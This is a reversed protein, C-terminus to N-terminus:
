ETLYNVMDFVFWESIGSTFSSNIEEAVLQKKIFDIFKPQLEM